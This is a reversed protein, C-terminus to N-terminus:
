NYRYKYNNNGPIYAVNSIKIFQKSYDKIENVVYDGVKWRPKPTEVVEEIFGQEILEEM